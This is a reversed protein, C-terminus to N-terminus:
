GGPPRDAGDPVVLPRKIEPEKEGLSRILQLLVNRRLFVDYAFEHPLVYSIEQEAFKSGVIRGNYHMLPLKGQDLTRSLVDSGLSVSLDVGLTYRTRGDPETVGFIFVDYAKGDFIMRNDTSGDAKREFVNTMRNFEYRTLKLGPLVAAIYDPAGPGELLGDVLVTEGRGVQHAGEALPQTMTERMTVSGFVQMGPFTTDIFPKLNDAMQLDRAEYTLDLVPVAQRFDLRMQGTATGQNLRCQFRPLVLRRDALRGEASLDSLDYETGWQPHSLRVHELRVEASLYARALLSRLRDALRGSGFDPGTGPVDRVAGADGAGAPRGAAVAESTQRIMEQVEVLDLVSGRVILSGTPDDNPRSVYAVVEVDSGGVRVNLGETQLRDADYAVPGDVRVTRGLWQFRAANFDLRCSEVEAGKTDAAARLDVTVTGTPELDALHSPLLSALIAADPVQGQVHLTWATPAAPVLLRPDAFLLRGQASATAEALHVKLDEVVMEGPVEGYQMALAVSAPVAAEKIVVPRPAAPDPPLPSQLVEIRVRFPQQGCRNDVTWRAPKTESVVTKHPLYEVPTFQWAGGDSLRLRFDRGPERVRDITAQDFYNALRHQEYWGIVTLMDIARANAPAGGVRLGGLSMSADLAMNKAM